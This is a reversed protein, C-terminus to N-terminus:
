ALPFYCNFTSGLSPQSEAKIFGNHLSMIKRCITLGMGSGRYISKDHLKYFMQFIREAEEKNFGIGNDSVSIIGYPIDKIADRDFGIEETQSYGIKILPESDLQRFKICNDLLNYFLIHLLTPDAPIRPIKDCEVKTGSKILIVNLETLVNQLIIAPEVMCINLRIDHIKSFAEIDDTLLKLKQIASQVRRINARGENSLFRADNTVIFELSTYVKKFTDKFDHIVVSNFTKLETNLEELERNKNILLKESQKQEHIDKGIGITQIVRDEGDKHFITDRFCFWRWEGSIKLRLEVEKIEGPKLYRMNALHRKKKIRDEPHVIMRFSAYGLKYMRQKDIGFIEAARDNIFRLKGTELDLVYIVDPTTNTVKEIFYSSEGLASQGDGGTYNEQSSLPSGPESM